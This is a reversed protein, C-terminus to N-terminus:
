ADKDDRRLVVCGNSVLCLYDPRVGQTCIKVTEEVTIWDACKMLTRFQGPHLTPFSQYSKTMELSMGLTSKGRIIVAIMILNAIGIILSTLIADWLPTDSIFYYYLIYFGTGTLLLGRLVLENRALLGLM